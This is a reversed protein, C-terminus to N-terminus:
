GSLSCGTMGFPPNVFPHVNEALVGEPTPHDPVHCSQYAPCVLWRLPSVPLRLQLEVSRRFSDPLISRRSPSLSRISRSSCLIATMRGSSAPESPFFPSSRTRERTTNIPSCRLCPSSCRSSPPHYFRKTTAKRPNSSAASTSRDQGFVAM